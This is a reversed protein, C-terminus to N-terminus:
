LVILRQEMMVMSGMEFPTLTTKQSLLLPLGNGSWGELWVKLGRECWTLVKKRQISRRPVLENSMHVQVGATSSQGKVEDEHFPCAVLISSLSYKNTAM